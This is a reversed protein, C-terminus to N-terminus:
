KSVWLGGKSWIKRFSESAHAALTPPMIFDLVSAVVTGIEKMDMRLNSREIFARWQSQKVGDSIFEHSLGFPVNSPITTRRRHFTATIADKLIEGDFAFLKSLWWIDYYDKMRSNIIGLVVIAQFKEAVVSEPPYALLIPNPFDLLTPFKIQNVDPTVVDGFGIDVQVPISAKGLYAKLRVRLGNYEDMDRIDDLRISSPDLRLGDDEVRTTCLVEFIERIEGRSPNGSTHLDLDRTSRHPFKSWVTFLMAGKLIFRDSYETISLRYLLREASYRIFILNLDDGKKKSLNILRQLVSASVNKSKEQNM